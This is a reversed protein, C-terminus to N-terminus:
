MGARGFRAALDATKAELDAVTTEIGSLVQDARAVNDVLHPRQLAALQKTLDSIKKRYGANEAAIKAVGGMAKEVRDALDALATDRGALQKALSDRQSTVKALDDDGVGADVKWMTIAAEPHAPRDVLSVEALLIETIITPDKKDRKLVKGGVSFGGYVKTKVKKVADPDVIHATLYTVGDDDVDIEVARGAASTSRHMERIAPYKRYAPLAKKIASALITEGTSDPTETSAVGTVMISGDDADEVKRLPAFFTAKMGVGGGRESPKALGLRGVRHHPRADHRPLDPWTPKAPRATTAGVTAGLAVFGNAQLIQADFDPVDITAGAACTYTRGNVTVTALKGNAGILRVNPM